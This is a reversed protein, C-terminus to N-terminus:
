DKSIIKFDDSDLLACGGWTGHIQGVDDVFQVFGEKGSYHPEGEMLEIRIKTGSPYKKRLYDAKNSSM